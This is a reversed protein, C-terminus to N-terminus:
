QVSSRSRYQELLEDIRIGDVILGAIDCNDLRLNTLDCGSLTGGRFNCNEIKVSRPHPKADPDSANLFGVNRITAGGWQAGDITLDSLNADSITIGSMNVNHFTARAVNCNEFALKEAMVDTFSSGSVNSNIVTIVKMENEVRMTM